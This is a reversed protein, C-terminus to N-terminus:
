IRGLAAQYGAGPQLASDEPSCAHLADGRSRNAQRGPPADVRRGATEAEAAVRRYVALTGRAAAEWTFQAARALGRASLEARLSADDLLRGLAEAWARPDDPPLLLGAGDVAEPLSSTEAAVVPTGCAMAELPPLGMGEYLSPFAFVTALSLLGPLDAEPVHGTLIVRDRLGLAELRDFFSQYLWGKRGAVVLGVDPHADLLRRYAELLLGHNKRPEITCV